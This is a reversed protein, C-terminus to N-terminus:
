EIEFIKQNLKLNDGKKVFVNKIKGTLSSYLETEMKMAEIICVLDGNKIEQGQNIKVDIVAGAIPSRMFKVDESVTTFETQTPVPVFIKKPEEPLDIMQIIEEITVSYLNNNVKIKLTDPTTQDVDVIFTHEDIKINYKKM